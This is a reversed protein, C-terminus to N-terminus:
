RDLGGAQASRLDADRQFAADILIGIGDADVASGHRGEHWGGEDGGRWSAMQVQRSEGSAGSADQAQGAIAGLSAVTLALVSRTVIKKM